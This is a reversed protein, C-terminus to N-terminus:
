IALCFTCFPWIYTSSLFRVTLPKFANLLDLIKTHYFDAMEKKLKKLESPNFAAM